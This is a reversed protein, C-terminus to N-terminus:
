YASFDVAGRPSPIREPDSLNRPMRDGSLRHMNRGGFHGDGKEGEVKFGGIAQLNRLSRLSLKTSFVQSAPTLRSVSAV